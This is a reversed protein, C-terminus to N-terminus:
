ALNPVNPAVFGWATVSYTIPAVDVNHDMTLRHILDPKLRASVKQDIDPDPGALGIGTVFSGTGTVDTMNNGRGELELAGSPQIAYLELEVFPTLSFATVVMEFYIITVEQGIRFDVSVNATRELLALLEVPDQNVPNLSSRGRLLSIM